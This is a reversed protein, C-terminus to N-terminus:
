ITKNSKKGNVFYMRMLGKNKVEFEGRYSCDFDEKVLNYTSESINIKGIESGAEMRAAINVTDGWIDYVFKKKGVVGAVVPGSNVGIRIDFRVLESDKDNKKDSVFDIIELAAELIKKPHNETPFPIGGACMYADGVTKIKELGHKEIIDDFKSFYFDVSEVLFEPELNEAYNTFNKFDTFLVSVSDFRKAKVKGVEKLEQATQEPLINLLLNESRNKEEEIIKNTRKIFRNRRLLGLALMLILVLASITSIVVIKQTRKQANLLDVEAQKQSIEFETRLNAMKEIAEINQVSDRYIVYNKFYKNSSSFDGNQEYLKSLQLNADSIQNKLGYKQALELSRLSYNLAIDLNNRKSYIDSIYTLYVSIPYFDELDELISIAQNMNFLALSDQGKEAYVMGLNGMNYATGILYKQKKFIIGSEDFYLIASDYKKTNLYEDGANLLASALSISDETKRLLTIATNYYTRANDSNGMESYVDAIAMNATGEGGEFGAKRAAERSKFFETLAVQLNGKLRQINGKQLHGGSLLKYNGQSTSLAILEDAYETALALDNVENFSLDKLLKLKDPGELTNELYIVRLSDAIKQDQAICNFVGPLFLLVFLFFRFITNVPYM